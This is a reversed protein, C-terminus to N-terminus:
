SAVKLRTMLDMARARRRQLRQRSTVLPRSFHHELVHIADERRRVGALATAYGIAFRERDLHYSSAWRYAEALAVVAEHRSGGLFAPVQLHYQGLAYNLLPQQPDDALATVILTKLKALLLVAVCLPQAKVWFGYARVYQVELSPCSSNLLRAARIIQMVNNADAATINEVGNDLLREMEEEAHAAFAQAEADVAAPTRIQREDGYVLNEIVARTADRLVRAQESADPQPQSRFDEPRILDGFIVSATQGRVFRLKGKPLVGGANRIGVPLLPVGLKLALNFAGCKFPLLARGDSRQGESYIIVIEGRELLATMQRYAAERDEPDIPVAGLAEYCLTRFWGRFARAKTPIYVRRRRLIWILGAIVFNDFYSQHNAVVIYPGSKPINETGLFYKLHRMGNRFLFFASLGFIAQEVLKRLSSPYRSPKM